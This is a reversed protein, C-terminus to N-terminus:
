KASRLAMWLRAATLPFELAANLAQEPLHLPAFADAAANYLAAPVGICGAEGVGKAGLVNTPAGNAPAAACLNDIDVAPMDGARPVAYDMLSGTLLQGDADYVIRELLAQGIGQAMGGVLQGEALLPSIIRGADDVWVM